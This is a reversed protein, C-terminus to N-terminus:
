LLDKFEVFFDCNPLTKAKVFNKFGRHNQLTEYIEKLKGYCQTNRFDEPHTGM